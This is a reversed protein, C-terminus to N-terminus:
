NFVVRQVTLNASALGFYLGCTLAKEKASTATYGLIHALRNKEPIGQLNFSKHPTVLAEHINRRDGKRFMLPHTSIYSLGPRQKFSGTLKRHHEISM